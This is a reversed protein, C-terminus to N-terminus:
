IQLTTLIQYGTINIIRQSTIYTNHLIHFTGKPLFLIKNKNM